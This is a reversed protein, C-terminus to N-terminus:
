YFFLTAMIRTFTLGTKWSTKLKIKTKRIFSDNVGLFSEVNKEIKLWEIFMKIEVIAIFLFMCLCTLVDSSTLEIWQRQQYKKGCEVFVQQTRDTTEGEHM